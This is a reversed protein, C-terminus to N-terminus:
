FIQYIHYIIYLMVHYIKTNTSQKKEVMFKGLIETMQQMTTMVKHPLPHKGFYTICGELPHMYKTCCLSLMYIFMICM